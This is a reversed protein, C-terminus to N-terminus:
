PTEIRPAPRPPRVGSARAPGPCPGPPGPALPQRRLSRLRHGPAALRPAPASSRTDRGPNTQSPPHAPKAARYFPSDSQLHIANQCSRPAPAPAHARAPLPAPPHGGAGGVGPQPTILSRGPRSRASPRPPPGAGPGRPRGPRAAPAGRRAHTSSLRPAHITMGPAEGRPGLPAPVTGDVGRRARAPLRARPLAAAAGTADVPPRRAAAARGGRAPGRM